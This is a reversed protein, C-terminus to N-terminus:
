GSTEQLVRYIDDLGEEMCVLFDDVNRNGKYGTAICGMVNDGVGYGSPCSDPTVITQVNYKMQTCLLSVYLIFVDPPLGVNFWHCGEDSLMLGIVVKTLCCQVLSLRRSVVNFWHCGEDSLMSGIVVKTLCCQVM